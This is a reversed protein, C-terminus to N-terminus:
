GVEGQSKQYVSRLDAGCITIQNRGLCDPNMPCDPGYDPRVERLARTYDKLKAASTGPQERLGRLTGLARRNDFGRSSVSGPFGPDALLVRVGVAGGRRVRDRFSLNALSHCDNPARNRSSSAWTFVRKSVTDVTNILV